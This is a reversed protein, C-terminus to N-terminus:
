ARAALCTGIVSSNIAVIRKVAYVCCNQKDVSKRLSHQNGRTENRTHTAAGKPFFTTMKRQCHFQRDLSEFANCEVPRM